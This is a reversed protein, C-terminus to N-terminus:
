TVILYPVTSSPLQHGERAEACVLKCECVQIHTGYGCVGRCAFLSAVISSM